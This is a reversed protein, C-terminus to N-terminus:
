AFIEVVEHSVEIRLKSRRCGAERRCCHGRTRGDRDGGALALGGPGSGRQRSNEGSGDTRIDDLIHLSQKEVCSSRNAKPIVVKPYSRFSLIQASPQIVPLDVGTHRLVLSLRVSHALLSTFLGGSLGPTGTHKSCHAISCSKSPLTHASKSM